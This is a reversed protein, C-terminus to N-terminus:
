CKKQCLDILVCIIQVSECEFNWKGGRVAHNEIGVLIGHSESISRRQGCHLVARGYIQLGAYSMKKIGLIVIVKQIKDNTQPNKLERYHCLSLFIINTKDPM